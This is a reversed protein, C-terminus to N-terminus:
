RARFGHGARYADVAMLLGAIEAASLMEVQEAGNRAMLKFLWPTVDGAVHIAAQSRLRPEDVAFGVTEVRPCRYGNRCSGKLRAIRVLRASVPGEPTAYNVSLWDAWGYYRYRTSVYVQYSARGTRKDIFARLFVDAPPPGLLPAREVFGDATTITAVTDLADDHLTARDRFLEPTMAGLRKADKGDRDAASARDTTSPVIAAVLIAGTLIARISIGM